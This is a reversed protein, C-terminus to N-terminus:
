KQAVFDERERWRCEPKTRIRKGGLQDRRQSWGVGDYLEPRPGPTVSGKSQTLDVGAGLVPRFVGHPESSQEKRLQCQPEQNIQHGDMEGQNREWCVTFAMLAPSAVAKMLAMDWPGLIADLEHYVSWLYKDLPCICIILSWLSFEKAM